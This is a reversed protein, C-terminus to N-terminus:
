CGSEEIKFTSYGTLTKAGVGYELATKLWKAAKELDGEDSSALLFAFKVGRAISVFPIITPSVTHEEMKDDKYIPAMVDPELVLGEKNSEVPYADHFIINGMRAEKAEPPNGFVKEVEKSTSVEDAMRRAAGKLSSGPFFPLQLIPDWSLGVEFALRGFGEGTGVLGRYALRAEIKKFRYGMSEYAREMVRYRANVAELARSAATVSRSIKIAEELAERKVDDKSSSNVEISKLNLYSYLNVPREKRYRKEVISLM